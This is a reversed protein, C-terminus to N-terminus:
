RFAAVVAALPVMDGRCHYSCVAYPLGETPDIRLAVAPKECPQAEGSRVVEETCENPWRPAFM